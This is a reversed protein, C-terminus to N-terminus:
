GGAAGGDPDADSRAEPEPKPEPGVIILGERGQRAAVVGAATVDSDNCYLRTLGPHTALRALGVDTLKTGYMNLWELSPLASALLHM